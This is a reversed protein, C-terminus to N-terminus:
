FSTRADVEMLIVIWLAMQAVALLMGTVAKAPSRGVISGPRLFALVGLVLVLPGTLLVVPGLLVSVLSLTLAAQDHVVRRNTFQTGGGRTDATELCRPCVHRGHIELDCLACLFRGCDDCPIVAKKNEHYFCSAVSEVLTEATRGKKVERFYAPFVTAQVQDGCHVCSILRPTNCASAPLPSLCSPCSIAGASM